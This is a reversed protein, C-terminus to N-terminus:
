SLSRSVERKGSLMGTLPVGGSSSYATFSGALNSPNAGNVTLRYLSVDEISIVALAMSNGESFTGYATIIQDNQGFPRLFGKGFVQNGAQFLQLGISAIPRAGADKLEFSWNGSANTSAGGPVALGGTMALYEATHETSVINLNDPSLDLPAPETQQVIPAAMAGFGAMLVLSVLIIELRM